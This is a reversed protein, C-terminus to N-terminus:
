YFLWQWTSQQGFDQHLSGGASGGHRQRAPLLRRHQRLAPKGLAAGDQSDGLLAAVLGVLYMEWFM